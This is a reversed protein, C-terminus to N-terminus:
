ASLFDTFGSSRLFRFMADKGDTDLKFVGCDYLVQACAEALGARLHARAEAVTNKTGHRAALEAIWPWHQALPDSSSPPAVRAGTLFGELAELEGILRGPLIFLGMVEILGINEKKIHHLPAHPHFLGLPHEATARNNRLVLDLAYSAGVRRAIPTITNHPTGGTQHLVEAKEDSYNRWMHLVHGALDCLASPHEGTLRLTTMPWSLLEARVGPAGPHSARAYVPASHMPFTYRGGQFHDHNLISGGVIPLDANSGIFYHPFQDLFDLLRAFTGRSISMPRHEDNLAICHERYYSYPSFQLRWPEGCFTLPLLRLTQRAPFDLRGAYGQNEVCLQCRPYGVQPANRLAAIDRPDKEPKALNITIELEGYPSPHFFRQNRAIADVRIYDNARQMAYYWDTAAQIGQAERIHSFRGSVVSPPPTLLGMLRASFLERCIPTDDILGRSVADDCLAELMATATPPLPDATELSSEDPSAYGLADLLLNRAWLRDEAAILGNAEAFALLATLATAAAATM